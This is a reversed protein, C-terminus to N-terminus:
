MVDMVYVDYDGGFAHGCTVTADGAMTFTGFNSGGEAASSIKLPGGVSLAGGDNVHLAGKNHTTAGM